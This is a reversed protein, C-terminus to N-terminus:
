GIICMSLLNELTRLRFVTAALCVETVLNQIMCSYADALIQGTNQHHAQNHHPNPTNMNQEASLLLRTAPVTNNALRISPCRRHMFAGAQDWFVGRLGLAGLPEVYRSYLDGAGGTENNDVAASCGDAAAISEWFQVPTGGVAAEIIGVALQQEQQQQQHHDGDGAGEAAAIQIPAAEALMRAGAYWCIASFPGAVTANSAVWRGAPQAGGRESRSQANSDLTDDQDEGEKENEGDFLAETTTAMLRLLPLDYEAAAAGGASANNHVWAASSSLQFGMNSQGSCLYVDGVAIDTLRASARGNGDRGDSARSSSMSAVLTANLTPALPPLEVAWTGNATVSTSASALVRGTASLLEVSATVGTADDQGSSTETAAKGGTGGTTLTATGWVRAKTVPGRQLVMSSGFPIDQRVGQKSQRPYNFSITGGGGGDATTPLPVAAAAAAAVLPAAGSSLLASSSPSAAAGLLLLLQAMAM